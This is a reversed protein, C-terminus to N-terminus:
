QPLRSLARAKRRRLRWRDARWRPPALVHRQFGRIGVALLGLGLRVRRTRGRGGGAADAREQLWSAAVWTVAAASLAFGVESPPPQRVTTLGLPILAECGFFGFALLGRLTTGCALGPCGVLTGHPMLAGLAPVALAAGALVAAVMWPGALAQGSGWLVLGVGVAVRVSAAVQSPTGEAIDAVPLRALAPAFLTAGGLLLPLLGLFVVRWSAHEAVQGAIAPGVLAPILWASSLLALLRPRLADPFGRAVALYALAVLAGGGVGQLARGLLLM